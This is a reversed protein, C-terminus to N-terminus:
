VLVCYYVAARLLFHTGGVKFSYLVLCFFFGASNQGDAPYTCLFLFLMERKRPPSLKASSNDKELFSLFPESIYKSIEECIPFHIVFSSFPRPAFHLLAVKSTIFPVQWCAHETYICLCPMGKSNADHRQHDLTEVVEEKKKRKGRVPWWRSFRGKKGFSVPIKVEAVFSYFPLVM